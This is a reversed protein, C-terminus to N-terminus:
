DCLAKLGTRTPHHLRLPTLPLRLTISFVGSLERKSVAKLVKRDLGGAREDSKVSALVPEVYARLKEISSFKSGCLDAILDLVKSHNITAQGDFAKSVGDILDQRVAVNM